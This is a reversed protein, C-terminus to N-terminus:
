KTSEAQEYIQKELKLVADYVVVEYHSKFCEPLKNKVLSTDGELQCIANVDCYGFIKPPLHTVIDNNTRMLICNKWREKLNDPMNYHGFIRPPEFAYTVFNVTNRLDPRHYWVAEHCLQAIAAGHSYGVITIVNYKYRSNVLDDHPDGHEFETVKKIIIDAVEKWAKLFGRHVKYPIQMDKYPCKKFMFNRKWDVLSNSPSFFIILENRTEKFKYDVDDGTTKWNNKYACEYFMDSIKM